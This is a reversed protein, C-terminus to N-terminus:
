FIRRSYPGKSLISWARDPPKSLNELSARKLEGYFTLSQYSDCCCPSVIQGKVGGEALKFDTTRKLYALGINGSVYVHGTSIVVRAPHASLSDIFEGGGSLWWV